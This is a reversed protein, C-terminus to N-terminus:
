LPLSIVGGGSINEQSVQSNESDALSCLLAVAETNVRKDLWM